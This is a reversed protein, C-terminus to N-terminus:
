GNLIEKLLQKARNKYNWVVQIDIDMMEAIEIPEYGEKELLIVRRQQPTLKDMALNFEVDNITNEIAEGGDSIDSYNEGDENPKFGDIRLVNRNPRMETYPVTTKKM